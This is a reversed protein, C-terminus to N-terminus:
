PIAPVVDVPFGVVAGKGRRFAGGRAPWGSSSGGRIMARTRSIAPKPNLTATTGNWMHAGSTYWPEGVVILTRRVDAEFFTPITASNRTKRMPRRLTWTSQTAVKAIRAITVCVTPFTTAIGWRDILRMSAYELMAWAPYMRIAKATPAIASCDLGGWVSLAAYTAANPSTPPM